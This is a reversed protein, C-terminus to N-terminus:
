AKQNSLELFLKPKLSLGATMLGLIGGALLRPSMRLLRCEMPQYIQPSGLAQTQIQFAQRQSGQPCFQPKEKQLWCIQDVVAAVLELYTTPTEIRRKDAVNWDADFKQAEIKTAGLDIGGARIM